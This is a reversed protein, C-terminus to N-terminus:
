PKPSHIQDGIQPIQEVVSTSLEFNHVHSRNTRMVDGLNNLQTQLKILCDKITFKLTLTYTHVKTPANKVILYMLHVQLQLPYDLICWILSQPVIDFHPM